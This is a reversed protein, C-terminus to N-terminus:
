PDSRHTVPNAKALKRRHRELDARATHKSYHRLPSWWLWILRSVKRKTNPHRMEHKETTDFYHGQVAQEGM